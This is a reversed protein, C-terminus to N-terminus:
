PMPLCSFSLTTNRGYRKFNSWLSAQSNGSFSASRTPRYVRSVTRSLDNYFTKPDDIDALLEVVTTVAPADRLHNLVACQETADMGAERSSGGPGNNLPELIGAEEESKRKRLKPDQSVNLDQSTVAHTNPDQAPGTLTNPDQSASLLTTPDQSTGSILNLDQINSEDINQDQNKPSESLPGPVPDKGSDISAM